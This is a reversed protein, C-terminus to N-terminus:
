ASKWRAVQKEDLPTQPLLEALASGALEAGVPLFEAAFRAPQDWPLDPENTSGICFFFFRGFGEALVASETVRLGSSQRDATINIEAGRGHYDGVSVSARMKPIPLIVRDRGQPVVYISADLTWRYTARTRLHANRFFALEAEMVEFQPLEAVPSFLRVLDLRSASRVKGSPERWPVELKAGLAPRIVFPARTTEVHLASFFKGNPGPVDYAAFTPALGDFARIIKAQWPGFEHSRVGLARGRADVGVLWLLDKGRAANAQAALERAAATPWRAHRAIHPGSPQGAQLKELARLAQFEIERASPM